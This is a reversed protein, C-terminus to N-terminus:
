TSSYFEPSSEFDIRVGFIDLDSNVWGALAPGDTQRHLLNNYYGEFHDTRFEASRLFALAEGPYGLVPLLANWGAVDASSAPRGLLVQFLAGIYRENPTSLASVTQAHQYFEPSGLIRSLVVEEAQGHELENVWGLEEGGQTPRGLYTAYWAKVMRDRAEFSNEIGMAVTARSGTIGLQQVWSEIEELSGTRGLADLYLCQVFHEDPNM